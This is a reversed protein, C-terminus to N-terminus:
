PVIVHSASAPISLGDEAATLPQFVTWGLHSTIKVAQGESLHMMVKDLLAAAKGGDQWGMVGCLKDRTVDVNLPGHVGEMRGDLRCRISAVNM